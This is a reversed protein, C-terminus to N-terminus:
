SISWDRHVVFGVVGEAGQIQYFLFYVNSQTTQSDLRGGSANRARQSGSAHSFLALMM